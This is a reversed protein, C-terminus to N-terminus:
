NQRLLTPPTSVLLVSDYTPLFSVVCCCVSVTESGLLPTSTNKNMLERWAAAATRTTESSKKQCTTQKVMVGGVGVGGGGEAEERSASQSWSTSTLAQKQEDCKNLIRGFKSILSFHHMLLNIPLFKIQLWKSLQILCKQQHVTLFRSNKKTTATTKIQKMDSYVSNRQTKSSWHLVDSSM